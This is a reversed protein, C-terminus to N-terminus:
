RTARPPRSDGLGAASVVSLVYATLVESGESMDPFYKLLGEGDTYSPLAAAITTWRAEDRSASPSRSRSSSAATATTACTTRCARPSAAWRPPPPSTSGGRDPEADAPRQVPMALPQDARLLTAQLTRVPVADRVQQTVALRDTADGSKAEIEYRLTDGYSPVELLWDVVQAAGAALEVDQAPLPTGDGSGEPIIRGAVSVTLPQDTTNRVTFQAPFRDGDRVLPPLGSLLMLDQTSRIETSGTGFLGLGGTAVAVIRFSTLSDNLPVEVAANGQADLPM